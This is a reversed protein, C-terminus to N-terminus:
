KDYYSIFYFIILILIFHFLFKFTSSYFQSFFFWKSASIIFFYYSLTFYSSFSSSSSNPPNPPSFSPFSPMHHWCPLSNMSPDDEPSTTWTLVYTSSWILINFHNELDINAWNLIKIWSTQWQLSACLIHLCTHMYMDERICVCLACVCVCLECVCVCVCM